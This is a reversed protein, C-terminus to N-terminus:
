NPLYRALAFYLSCAGLIIAVVYWQGQQKAIACQFIAYLALLGGFTALISLIDTM